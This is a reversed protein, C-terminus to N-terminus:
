LPATCCVSRSILNIISIFSFFLHTKLLNKFSGLTLATRIDLPLSNWAAPGAVSLFLL